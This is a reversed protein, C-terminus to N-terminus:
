TYRSQIFYIIIYFSFKKYDVLLTQPSTKQPYIKSDSSHKLMYSSHNPLAFFNVFFLSLFFQCFFTVFFLSLFFHCLTVFFTSFNRLNDISSSPLTDTMTKM